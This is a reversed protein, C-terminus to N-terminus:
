KTKYRKKYAKRAANVMVLDVINKFAIVFHWQWPFILMKKKKNLANVIKKAAVSTEIIFPKWEAKQTMESQVFGPCILTVDITEPLTKRWSESLAKVAFKSAAYAGGGVWAIHSAVSGVLAIHGSGQKLMTPLFPVITNQVGIVNVNIVKNMMTPNGKHLADLEGLGANAIVLDIRNIKSLFDDISEKTSHQDTVDVSYTTVQAGMQRCKNATQELKEKRRACLALHIGHKAYEYAIHEGIGSSAGTIFINMLVM